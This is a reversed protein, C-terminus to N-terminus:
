AGGGGGRGGQIVERHKKSKLHETWQVESNFGKRCVGCSWKRELGRRVNRCEVSERHGNFEEINALQKNCPRCFFPARLEARSTYKLGEVVKALGSGNMAVGPSNGSSKTEKNKKPKKAKKAKSTFSTQPLSSQPLPSILDNAYKSLNMVSTSTATKNPNNNNNNYHDSELDQKNISTRIIEEGEISNSDNNDSDSNDSNNSDSNMMLQKELEKINNYIDNIGVNSSQILSSIGNEGRLDGKQRMRIAIPIDKDNSSM